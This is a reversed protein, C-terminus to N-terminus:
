RDQESKEKSKKTRKKIELFYLTFMNAYFLAPVYGVLSNNDINSNNDLDPIAKTCVNAAGNM